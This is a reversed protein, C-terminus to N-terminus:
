ADSPVREFEPWWEQIDAKVLTWVSLARMPDVSKARVLTLFAQIDSASAGLKALTKVAALEEATLSM